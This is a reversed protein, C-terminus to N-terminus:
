YRAQYQNGCLKIVEGLLAEAEQLSEDMEERNCGVAGLIRNVIHWVGM